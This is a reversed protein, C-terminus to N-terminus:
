GGSSTFSFSNTSTGLEAFYRRSRVRLQVDTFVPRYRGGEREGSGVGARRTPLPTRPNYAYPGAPGAAGRQTEAVRNVFDTWETGDM